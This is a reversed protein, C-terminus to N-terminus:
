VSSQLHARLIRKKNTAIAAGNKPFAVSGKPFTKCPYNIYSDSDQLYKLNAEMNMDGVKFYPVDGVNNLLYESPTYGSKVSSIDSLKCYTWAKGM